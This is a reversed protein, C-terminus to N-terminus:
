MAVLEDLAEGAVFVATTWTTLSTAALQLCDQFGEVVTQRKDFFLVDDISFANAVDLSICVVTLPRYVIELLKCVFAPM